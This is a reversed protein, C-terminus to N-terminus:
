KTMETEGKGGVGIRSTIVIITMKYQVSERM